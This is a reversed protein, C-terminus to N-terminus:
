LNGRFVNGMEREGGQSGVKRGKTDMLRSSNTRRSMMDVKKKNERCFPDTTPNWDDFIQVFYLGYSNIHFYFAL